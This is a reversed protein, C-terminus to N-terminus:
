PITSLSAVYATFDMFSAPSLSNIQMVYELYQEHQFQDSATWSNAIPPLNGGNIDRMVYNGYPIDDFVFRTVNYSEPQKNSFAKIISSFSQKIQTAPIIKNNTDVIEIDVGTLVPLKAIILQAYLDSYIMYIVVRGTDNQNGRLAALLAEAQEFSPSPQYFNPYTTGPFADVFAQNLLISSWSSGSEVYGGSIGAAILQVLCAIFENEQELITARYIKWKNKAETSNGQQNYAEVLLNAAKLQAYGASAYYQIYLQVAKLFHMTGSEVLPLTMDTWLQLVGKSGAPNTLLLENMEGIAVSAGNNTNEIDTVLAKIEAQTTTKPAQAYDMYTQYQSTVQTIYQQLATDQTEWQTYLIEQNIVKLEQQIASFDKTLETEIQNLTQQVVNLEQGIQEIEQSQASNPGNFILNM